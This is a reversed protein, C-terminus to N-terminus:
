ITYVLIWYKDDMKYNFILIIAQNDWLFFEAYLKTYNWDLIAIKIIDVNCTWYTKVYFLTYPTILIM